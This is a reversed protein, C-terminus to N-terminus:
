DYCLFRKRTTRNFYRCQEQWWQEMRDLEKGQEIEKRLRPTGALIDFPMRRTEYEYPPDKWLPESPYLQKVSKLIAVATKFPRFKERNMVHIQAGGCLMGAHKQFAPEFYLPRFSVGPLRFGRLRRVLMEPEIFPAGFIEFPRTTGRGESLSTGELLCMGPYVLATDLTPMNPSPLVWPLGCDNFWM